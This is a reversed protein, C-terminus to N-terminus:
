CLSYWDTDRQMKRKKEQEQRTSQTSRRNIAHIPRHNNITSTPSKDIAKAQSRSWPFFCTNSLIRLSDPIHRSVMSFNGAVLWGTGFGGVSCLWGCCCCCCRCGFILIIQISHNGIRQNVHMCDNSENVPKYINENRLEFVFVIIASAAASFCLSFLISIFYSFSFFSFIPISHSPSAADNCITPFQISYKFSYSSSFLILIRLHFLSGM